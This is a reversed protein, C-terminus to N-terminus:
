TKEIQLPEQLPNNKLRRLREIRKKIENILQTNSTKYASDLSSTYCDIANSIEGLQEHIIAKYFFTEACHEPTVFTILQSLTELAKIYQKSRLYLLARLLYAQNNHPDIAIAKSYCAHASPNDLGAQYILGLNLYTEISEPNIAIAKKFWEISQQSKGLPIYTKAIAECIRENKKEMDYAHLLDTLAYEYSQKNSSNGNWASQTYLGQYYYALGRYFYARNQSRDSSIIQSFDSIAKSYKKNNLDEIGRKYQLDIEYQELHHELTQSEDQLSIQKQLLRNITDSQDQRSIRKYCDLAKEYQDTKEYCIAQRFLAETLNEDRSLAHTYWMLATDYESLKFYINAIELYPAYNSPDMQICQEFFRIAEEYRDTAECSYGCYFCSEKFNNSGKRIKKLDELAQNYKQILFYTKGREFLYQQNDPDHAIATSYDDLANGYLKLRAYLQARYQYIQADSSDTNQILVQSIDDVANKIENQQAYCYSRLLYMDNVHRNLQLVSTFDDIAKHFEQERMYALGRLYFGKYMKPNLSIAYTCDGIAKVYQKQEVFCYARGIYWEPNDQELKIAMTYAMIAKEYDRNQSSEAAIARLAQLDTEHWSELSCGALVMVYLALISCFIATHIKYSSTIM